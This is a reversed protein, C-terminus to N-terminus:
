TVTVECEASKWPFPPELRVQWAAALPFSLTLGSADVTGILNGDIWVATGDPIGPIVWDADVALAMTTPLDPLGPRQEVVSGNVWDQTDLVMQGVVLVAEGVAPQHNVVSLECMGSKSIRGSLPNYCAYFATM